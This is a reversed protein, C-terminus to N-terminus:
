ILSQQGTNSMEVPSTGMAEASEQAPQGNTENDLHFSIFLRPERRAFSDMKGCSSSVEPLLEFYDVCRM